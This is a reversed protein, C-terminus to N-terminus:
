TNETIGNGNADYAMAFIASAYVIDDNFIDFFQWMEDETDFFFLGSGILSSMIEIYFEPYKAKVRNMVEAWIEADNGEFILGNNVYVAFKNTHQVALSIISNWQHFEM